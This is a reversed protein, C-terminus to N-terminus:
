YRTGTDLDIYLDKNGQEVKVYHDRELAFIRDYEIPLVVEGNMDVIGAKNNYKIYNFRGSMVLANDCKISFYVDGATNICQWEEADIKKVFARGEQFHSADEYIYDLATEGKINMYGYVGNKFVLICDSSCSSVYTVDDSFRHLVLKDRNIISWGRGEKHVSAVGESFNTGDSFQPPIVWNGEKDIFGYKKNDALLFQLEEPFFDYSQYITENTSIIENGKADYITTVENSKICFFRGGSKTTNIIISANLPEIIWEGRTNIVGSDYVENSVVGMGHEFIWADEYQPEIVWKKDKDVYGWKGNDGQSPILIISETGEVISNVLLKEKFLGDCSCLLLAVVLVCLLRKVCDRINVM